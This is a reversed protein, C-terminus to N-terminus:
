AIVCIVFSSWLVIRQSKLCVVKCIVCLLPVILPILSKTICDGADKNSDAECKEFIWIGAACMICLMFRQTLIGLSDRHWALLGEQKVKIDLVM